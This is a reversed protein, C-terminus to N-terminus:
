LHPVDLATLHAVAYSDPPPPLFRAKRDANRRKSYLAQFWM